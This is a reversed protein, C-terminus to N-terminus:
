TFFILYSLICCNIVNEFKFIRNLITLFVLIWYYVNKLFIKNYLLIRCVKNVLYNSSKQILNLNLLYNIINVISPM